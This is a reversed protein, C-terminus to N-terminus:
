YKKGQIDQVYKQKQERLENQLQDSRKTELKVLNLFDIFRSNLNSLRTLESRSQCAERELLNPMSKEERKV